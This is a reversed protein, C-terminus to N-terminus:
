KKRRLSSVAPQADAGDVLLKDADGFWTLKQGRTITPRQGPMSDALEAPAGDMVVRNDAAYFDAVEGKGVRSRPGDKQLIEVAGEAFARDLGSDPVTASTEESPENSLYARLKKSRVTLAPRTMLVNGEYLAVRDKDSYVLSAAKVVTPGGERETLTNTIGGNARLQRAPRDIEIVGGDLRNGGQWLRANGEYRIKTNGNATRMKQAMARVPEEGPKEPQRVTRVDGTADTTQNKQDLLITDADTAGTLDWVRAGGTLTIWDRQPEVLARESRARREGSEYRFKGWQELRTLDGSKLDFDAQLDDSWTRQRESGAVTPDADTVTAAQIGRFSKLRNADAYQISMREAELLRRRQGARNPLFELTGRAHTDIQEMEGGSPRLAMEIIEAKLVRTEPVAVGPKAVPISRAVSNGSAIARRLTASGNGSDFSLDLRDSSVKTQATPSVSDLRANSQGIIKEVVGGDRFIMELQDAAFETRRGDRQDVGKAAGASVLRINGNELTIEASGGTMSLTDRSFKSWPMLLVKGEAEKYVLEGAEIRMPAGPQGNGRWVLKVKSKLRLERTQPDYTAGEGEGEGVDLRFVAHQDTDARGTKNEFTVGSTKIGILRGPPGDADTLGLTIEVEADSRLTGEGLSFQAKPSIVRDFKMGDQHFIKLEVAALDFVSPDKVHKFEAARIEVKPQGAASYSWEWGTASANLSNELPAPPKPLSGAQEARNRWYLTGITVALAATCIALWPALRRM